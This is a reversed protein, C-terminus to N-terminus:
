SLWHRLLRGVGGRRAGSFLPVFWSFPQPDHVAFPALWRGLGADMRTVDVFEGTGPRQVGDPGVVETVWRCYYPGDEVKRVHRIRLPGVVLEQPARMGWQGRRSALHHCDEILVVSTRGDLGIDLILNQPDRGPDLPEILYHVWTGEPHPTRGWTWCEIGLQELGVPSANGDHYGAGEVDFRWDGCTLHAEGRGLMRPAWRHVSDGGQPVEVRPGRLVLSGQLRPGGPIPCDLEVEIRDGHDVFRCGDLQLGGVPFPDADGEHPNLRQLLWLDPKGERHVAVSVSPEALPKVPEGRRGAAITGPMFPLGFSWIVVVGNHNEDLIDLYGWSFGRDVTRLEGGLGM